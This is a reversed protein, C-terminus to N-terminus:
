SAVRLEHAIGEQGFQEHAIGEQAVGNAIAPAIIQPVNYVGIHRIHTM